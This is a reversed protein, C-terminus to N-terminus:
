IEKFLKDDTTLIDMLLWEGVSSLVIGFNLYLHRYYWLNKSAKIIIDFM